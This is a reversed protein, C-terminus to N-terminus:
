QSPSADARPDLRCPGQNNVWDRVVLGRNPFCVLIRNTEIGFGRQWKPDIPSMEGNYTSIEIALEPLGQTSTRVSFREPQDLSLGGAYGGDIEFPLMIALGDDFRIGVRYCCHAGGSFEVLILDRRGDGDFDHAGRWPPTQARVTNSAVLFMVLALTFIRM